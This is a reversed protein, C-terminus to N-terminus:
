GFNFRLAKRHTEKKTIQRFHKDTKQWDVDLDFPGLKM